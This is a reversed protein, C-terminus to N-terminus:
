YKTNELPGEIGSVKVCWVVTVLLSHGVTVRECSEGIVIIDDSRLRM